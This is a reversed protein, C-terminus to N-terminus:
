MLSHHNIQPIFPYLKVGHLDEWSQSLFLYIFELGSLQHYISHITLKSLPLLQKFIKQFYHILPFKKDTGLICLTAEM